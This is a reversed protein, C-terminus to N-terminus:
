GGLFDFVLQNFHAPREMNLMHGARAMEVLVAADIQSVLLDAVIRSDSVDLEGFLVLTPTDIEALRGAASSELSQSASPRPLALAETLMQAVRRRIEAPVEGPRRRPGDVWLALSAAVAEAPTMQTVARQYAAM